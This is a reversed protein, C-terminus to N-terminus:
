RDDAPRGRGHLSAPWARARQAPAPRAHALAAALGAHAGRRRPRTPPPVPRRDERTELDDAETRLGVTLAGTAQAVQQVTVAASLAGSFPLCHPAPGRGRAPGRRLPEDGDTVATCRRHRSGPVTM